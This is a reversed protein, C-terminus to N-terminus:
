YLKAERTHFSLELYPAFALDRLAFFVLVQRSLRLECSIDLVSFGM